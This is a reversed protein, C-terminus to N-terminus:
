LILIDAYIDSIYTDSRDKRTYLSSPYIRIINRLTPIVVRHPKRGNDDRLNPTAGYSLLKEIMHRDDKFSALTLLTCGDSVIQDPNAGRELLLYLCQKDLSHTMYSWQKRTLLRPDAGSDLLSKVNGINGNICNNYLPTRGRHDKVCPDARKELLCQTYCGKTLSAFHLATRGKKDRIHIDTGKDILSRVIRRFGKKIYIMLPTKGDDDQIDIDVGMDLISEVMMVNDKSLQFIAKNIEKQIDRM